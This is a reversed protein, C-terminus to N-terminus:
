KVRKSILWIFSGTLYIYFGALEPDVKKIKKTQQEKKGHRSSFEHAIECFYHLLQGWYSDLKLLKVLEDRIKRDDLRKNTNLVTKVLSELSSYANTITDQYNKTLYHKLAQTYLKKVNPFRNLWFLNNLILEKDLEKAQSKIIIENSYIYGIDVLTLDFAEKVDSRLNKYAKRYLYIDTEKQILEKLTAILVSLAVINRQLSSTTKDSKFATSLRQIKKYGLQFSFRELLTEYEYEHINYFADVFVDEIKEIILKLRNNFREIEEEYQPLLGLNQYIKKLHM